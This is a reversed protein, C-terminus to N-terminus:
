ALPLLSFRGIFAPFFGLQVPLHAKEGLKQASEVAALCEQWRPFFPVLSHSGPVGQWPRFSNLAPCIKHGTRSGCATYVLDHRNQAPISLFAGSSLRHRGEPKRPSLGIV